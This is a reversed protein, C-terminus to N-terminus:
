ALGFVVLRKEGAHITEVPSTRLSRRIFRCLLRESTLRGHVRVSSGIRRKVSTEESNETMQSSKESPISVTLVVVAVEM